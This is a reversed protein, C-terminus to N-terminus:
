VSNDNKEGPTGGEFLSALWSFPNNRDLEDDILELSFGEGDAEEPWDNKDDYTVTEVLAGEADLLRLEEGKPSLNFGFSGVHNSVSPYRAKFTTANRALVLYEGPQLQTGSPLTFANDDKSDMFTWKSIDIADGAVNKLEVWDGGGATQAKTETTANGDVPAKGTKAANYMIENIVVDNQFKSQAPSKAHATCYCVACLVAYLGLTRAATAKSSRM